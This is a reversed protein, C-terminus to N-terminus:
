SSECVTCERMEKGCFGRYLATGGFPGSPPRMAPEVALLIAVPTGMVLNEEMPGQKGEIKLDDEDFM